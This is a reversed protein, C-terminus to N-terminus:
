YGSTLRNCLLLNTRWDDVRDSVQATTKEDYFAMLDGRHSETNFAGSCAAPCAAPNGFFFDEECAVDWFFQIREMASSRLSIPEIAALPTAVPRVENLCLGLLFIFFVSTLTPPKGTENLDGGEMTM